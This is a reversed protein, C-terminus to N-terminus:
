LELALLQCSPRFEEVAEVLMRERRFLTAGHDCVLVGREHKSARSRSFRARDGRFSAIQDFRANAFGFFDQQQRKGAVGRLFHGLANGLFAALREFGSREM